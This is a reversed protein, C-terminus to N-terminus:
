FYSFVNCYSTKIGPANLKEELEKWAEERKNIDKYSRLHTNWLCPYDPMINVINEALSSNYDTDDDKEINGQSQQGYVESCVSQDFEDNQYPSSNSESDDEMEDHGQQNIPRQFQREDRYSFPQLKQVNEQNQLLHQQQQQQFHLQQQWVRFRESPVPPSGLPSQLPSSLLSPLPNEQLHYLINQGSRQYENRINNIQNAAKAAHANDSNNIDETFEDEQNRMNNNFNEFLM